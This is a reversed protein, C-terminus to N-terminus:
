RKGSLGGHDYLYAATQYYAISENLFEEDIPLATLTNDTSNWNYYNAKKQDSLVLLKDEKLLGVKRYNGLFARQDKQNIKSLDIGYFNSEYSWNLMGFLTPFIDIQSCMQTISKNEYDPFNVIICPIHYNAVSLEWKGASNACHDAM